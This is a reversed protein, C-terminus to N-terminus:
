LYHEREGERELDVTICHIGGDWFYRHRWSCIIPEIKHKKFFNFVEKNYNSVIVHNEDLSLVNVDFITEKAYGVWESLWTSVLKNWAPDIYKNDEFAYSRTDNKFVGWNKLVSFGNEVQCASWGKFINETYKKAEACTLLVGPKQLSLTSDSHAIKGKFKFSHTPTYILNYGLPELWNRLYNVSKEDNAIQENQQDLIIDNGLRVIGPPMLGFTSKNRKVKHKEKAVTALYDVSTGLAKQSCVLCDDLVILDDRPNMLYPIVNADFTTSSYEPRVVEVGFDECIKVLEQYDEETEDLLQGLLRKTTPSLKDKLFDNNVISSSFTQGIMVRKLKQFETYAKFM